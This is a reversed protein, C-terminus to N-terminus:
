HAFTSSILMSNWVLSKTCVCVNNGIDWFNESPSRRPIIHVDVIPIMVCVWELTTSHVPIKEKSSCIKSCNHMCTDLKNRTHNFWIYILCFNFDIAVFNRGLIPWWFFSYRNILEWVYSERILGLEGSTFNTALFPRPLVRAM